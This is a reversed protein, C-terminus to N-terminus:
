RFLPILIGLKEAKNSSINREMETCEASILSYNLIAQLDFQPLHTYRMLNFWFPM